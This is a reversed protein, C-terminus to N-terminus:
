EERDNRDCSGLHWDDLEHVPRSLKLAVYAQVIGQSLM